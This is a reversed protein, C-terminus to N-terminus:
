FDIKDTKSLRPLADFVAEPFYYEPWFGDSGSKYWDNIEKTAYFNNNRYIMPITMTDGHRSKRCIFETVGKPEMEYYEPRYLFAVMDADQELSGSERLDSLQPRKDGGRSDIGRSLQAFAVIKIRLRKATSKLTRSIESIEQERFKNTGKVIQIYDIFFLETGTAAQDEILDVLEALHSVNDVITLKLGSITNASDTIKYMEEKGVKGNRMRIVPIHTEAQFFRSIIQEAPMEISVFCSKVTRSIARVMQVGFETKGMAPRGGIIIFDCPQMKGFDKDFIEFPWSIGKNPKEINDITRKIQDELNEVTNLKDLDRLTANLKDLVETPEIGNIIRAISASLENKYTREIFRRYLKFVCETYYEDHMLDVDLFESQLKIIEVASISSASALSFIDPTQHKKIMDSLATGLNQHIQFWSGSLKTLRSLRPLNLCSVIIIEELEKQSM